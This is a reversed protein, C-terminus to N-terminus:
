YCSYNNVVVLNIVLIQVRKKKKLRVDLYINKDKLFDFDITIKDILYKIKIKKCKLIM